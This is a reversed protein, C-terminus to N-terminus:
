HSHLFDCTDDLVSSCSCTNRNRPQHPLVSRRKIYTVVLNGIVRAVSAHVVRWRVLGSEEWGEFGHTWSCPLREDLWEPLWGHVIDCAGEADVCSAEQLRRMTSLKMHKDIVGGVDLASVGGGTQPGKVVDTGRQGGINGAGVEAVTPGTTGTGDATIMTRVAAGAGTLGATVAPPPNVMTTEIGGGTSGTGIGAAAEAETATGTAISATAGRGRRRREATQDDDVAERTRTRKQSKCDVGRTTTKIAQSGQDQFKSLM